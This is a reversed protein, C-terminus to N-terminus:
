PTVYKKVTVKDDSECASLKMAMNVIPYLHINSPAKQKTLKALESDIEYKKM